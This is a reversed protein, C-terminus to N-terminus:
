VQLEILTCYGPNSVYSAQHASTFKGCLPGSAFVCHPPSPKALFHLRRLKAQPSVSTCAIPARMSPCVKPAPKKLAESLKYKGSTKGPVLKGAATLKKLERSLTKKWTGTLKWEAKGDVFQVAVLASSTTM